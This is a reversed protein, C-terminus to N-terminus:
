RRPLTSHGSDLRVEQNFEPQPFSRLMAAMRCAIRATNYADHGARHRSGEFTLGFRKLAADVGAQKDVGMFLNYLMGLNLYSDSFPQEIGLRACDRRISEDDRGWAAWTKAGGGFNKRITGIVENLHRGQKRVMAPTIGTLMTCYASVESQVPRVFYSATRGITPVPEDLIIEAIGIEIIETEQGPPAAGDWCTEEFDVVLLRDLRLNSM